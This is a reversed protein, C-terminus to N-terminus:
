GQGSAAQVLARAKRRFGDLLARDRTGAKRDRDNPQGGPRHPRNRPDHEHSVGRRCRVPGRRSSGGGARSGARRARGRVRVRAHDRAATRGRDAADAGRRGQRRVSEVDHVRVLEGRYNRMVAEYAGARLAEQMALANNLLNNSKILPNVSAPHNRIVSAFVVRVGRSTCRRGASRRAAQRHHGGVAHPLRRSRLHARRRRADPPHPRVVRRGAAVPGAGAARITEEIRAAFEEDTLPVTLAIMAASTRLRRLHRDLLFPRGDYTRLTEYVGEGYLFGHDLVSVVAQREARSSRGNVNVIAAM